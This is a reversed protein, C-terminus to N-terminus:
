GPVADDRVVVRPGSAAQVCAVTLLLVPVLVLGAPFSAGLGLAVGAPWAGPMLLPDMRRVLPLGLHGVPFGPRPGPVIHAQAPSVAELNIPEDM